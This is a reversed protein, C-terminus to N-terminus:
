ERAPEKRTFLSPQAAAGQRRAREAQAQERALRDGDQTTDHFLNFTDAAFRFEHQPIALRRRQRAKTIM